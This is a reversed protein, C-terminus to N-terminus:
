QAGKNVLLAATNLPAKYPGSGKWSQKTRGLQLLMLSFGDCVGTYRTERIVAYKHLQRCLVDAGEGMSGMMSANLVSIWEEEKISGPRKFEIVAFTKSASAFFHMAFSLDVRCATTGDSVTEEWRTGVSYQVLSSITLIAYRFEINVDTYM